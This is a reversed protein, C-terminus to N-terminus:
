PQKGGGTSAPEIVWIGAALERVLNGRAQEQARFRELQGPDVRAGAYARLIKTAGQNV